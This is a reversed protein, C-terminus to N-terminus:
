GGLKEKLKKAFGQDEIAIAMRNIKGIAQSLEASTGWEMIDMEYVACKDHFKKKTNPGADEAVIVLKATKSQVAKLASEGTSLKRAREALGLFNLINQKNQM